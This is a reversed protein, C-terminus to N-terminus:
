RENTRTGASSDTSLRCLQATRSGRGSRGVSALSPKYPPADPQSKWGFIKVILNVCSSGLCEMKSLKAARKPEICLLRKHRECPRCACYVHLVHFFALHLCIHMHIDPRWTRMEYPQHQPGYKIAIPCVWTRKTQLGACQRPVESAQFVDWDFAMSHYLTPHPPPPPHWYSLLLTAFHVPLSKPWVRMLADCHLETLACRQACVQEKQWDWETGPFPHLDIYSLLVAAAQLLTSKARLGSRWSHSRAEGM